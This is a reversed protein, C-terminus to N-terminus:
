SRSASPAASWRQRREWKTETGKQLARYRVGAPDVWESVVWGDRRRYSANGERRTLREQPRPCPTWVMPPKADPM